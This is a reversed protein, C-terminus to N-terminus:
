PFPLMGRSRHVSALRIHGGDLRLRAVYSGGTPCCGPDGPKWFAGFARLRPWDMVSGHQQTTAPYAKIGGQWAAGMQRWVGGEARFVLDDTPHMSISAGIKVVLIPGQRTQVVAPASIVAEAGSWGGVMGARGPQLLVIGQAHTLLTDAPEGAAPTAEGPLVYAQIQAVLPPRSGVVPGFSLVVCRATEDPAEDFGIRGPAELCQRVPDPPAAQALSGALLALGLGAALKLRM